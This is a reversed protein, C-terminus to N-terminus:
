ANQGPADPYEIMSVDRHEGDILVRLYIYDRTLKGEPLMRRKVNPTSFYVERGGTVRDPIRLAEEGVTRQTALARGITQEDADGDEDPVFKKLRECVQELYALHRASADNDRTFVVFAAEFAAPPNADYLSPNALLIRGVVTQGDRMLRKQSREYPLLVFVYFLAVAVVALGALGVCVWGWTPM